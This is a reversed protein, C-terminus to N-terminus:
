RTPPANLAGRVGEEVASALTRAFTATIHNNLDRYVIVNGIVSPCRDADCFFSTLDILTTGPVAQAAVILPDSKPVADARPMGCEGTRDSGIGVRTMCDIAEKGNGPIDAVVAIRSGAEILPKWANEYSV